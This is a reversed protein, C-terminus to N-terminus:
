AYVKVEEIFADNKEYENSFEKSFSAFAPSFLIIDEHMAIDFAKEVCEKLTDYVMHKPLTLRTTGTGELFICEKVGLIINEELATLPLGKDNGGIILIPKRMYVTNIADIAAITADATTANNDNFVRVMKEGCFFGMDQLRGEVGPFHTIANRIDGDSLGCQSAVEYALQAAVQNHEGIIKMDFSRDEPVVAVVSDRKKIESSAQASAILVDYDTQHKYIHAKDRFYAEKDNNYYNMHDDMFSTYVAINPSIKLDGFGQLQWSDLEFVLYDGEEVVELLPLNAVGRVNGGIHVRMGCARLIYAILQTTTSKGRTGTVGIITVGMDHKMVLQSVLAASMLVPIDLAQAHAVFESDSPVGAAKLIFNRKEFDTLLHGGLHYVIDPCEKLLSLSPALDEEKKIDTVIVNAGLRSLFLTDGVGRGLLGLGMVTVNHGKFFDEYLEKRM